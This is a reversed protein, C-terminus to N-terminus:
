IKPLCIKKLYQTSYHMDPDISSGNKINKTLLKILRTDLYISQDSLVGSTCCNEESQLQSSVSYNRSNAELQSPMFWASSVLVLAAVSASYKLIRERLFVFPSRYDGSLVGLRSFKKELQNLQSRLQDDDALHRQVEKKEDKDLLGFLYECLTREDIKM